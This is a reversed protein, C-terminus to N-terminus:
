SRRPKTSKKLFRGTSPDRYYKDLLRHCKVCLWEWNSFDRDYVGTINALELRRSEDVHNM